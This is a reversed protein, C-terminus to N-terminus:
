TIIHVLPDVDRSILQDGSCRIMKDFQGATSTLVFSVLHNYFHKKLKIKMATKYGPKMFIYIKWVLHAAAMKFSHFGRGRTDTEPQGGPTHRDRLVPEQV